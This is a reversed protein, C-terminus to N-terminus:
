SSWELDLLGLPEGGLREPIAHHPEPQAILRGRGVGGVVVGLGGCRDRGVLCLRVAGRLAAGGGRGRSWSRLIRSPTDGPLYGGGTRRRSRRRPQGEEEHCDM